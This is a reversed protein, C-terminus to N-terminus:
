EFEGQSRCKFQALQGEAWSAMNEPSDAGRECSAPPVAGRSTTGGAVVTGAGCFAGDGTTFTTVSGLLVSLMTLLGAGGPSAMGEFSAASGGGLATGVGAGAGMGAETEAGGMAVGASAAEAGASGASRTAAM